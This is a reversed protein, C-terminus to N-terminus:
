NASTLIKSVEAIIDELSSFYCSSHSVLMHQMFNVHNATEGGLLYILCEHIKVVTKNQKTKNSIKRQKFLCVTFVTKHYCEINGM